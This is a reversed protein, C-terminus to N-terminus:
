PSQGSMQLPDVEAPFSASFADLAKDRLEAQTRPKLGGALLKEIVAAFADEDYKRPRGGVGRAYPNRLPDRGDSACFNRLDESRVLPLGFASRGSDSFSLSRGDWIAEAATNTNWLTAPARTVAGDEELCEAALKGASLARRLERVTEEPMSPCSNCDRLRSLPPVIRYVVNYNVLVHVCHSFHFLQEFPDLIKIRHKQFDMWHLDPAPGEARPPATDPQYVQAKALRRFGYIMTTKVLEPTWVQQLDDPSSPWGMLAAFRPADFAGKKIECALEEGGLALLVMLENVDRAGIGNLPKEAEELEYTELHCNIAFTITAATALTVYGPPIFRESSHDKM